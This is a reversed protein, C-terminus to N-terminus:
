EHESEVAGAPCVNRCVGCRVCRSQDIHHQEYPTFPIAGVACNQACLTCGVCRSTIVFRTLAQCKGAPCRKELHAAFEEPFYRLATLVPNPATRGLGCRSGAKVMQGLEQLRPLDEPSGEGACLRDLIALMQQAGLRCFLCKGCSEAATFRLFYRAIDVMCDREDLAVLGGSGMIAGANVLDDYDVPLDFLREPLCGGSPGGIQVAKLRHGAEAGGGIEELIRRITLGM